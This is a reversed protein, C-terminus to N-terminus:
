HHGYVSADEVLVVEAFQSRNAYDQHYTSRRVSQPTLRSHFARRPPWPPAHTHSPSEGQPLRAHFSFATRSPPASYQRDGPLTRQLYQALSRGTKDGLSM